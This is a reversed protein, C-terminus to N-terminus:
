AHTDPLVGLLRQAMNPLAQVKLRDRIFAQRLLADPILDDFKDTRLKDTLFALSEVPPTTQAFQSLVEEVRDIGAGLVCLHARSQDVSLGAYKLALRLTDLKQTGVWPFLYIEHGQAFVPSRNLGM